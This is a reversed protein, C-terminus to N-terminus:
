NVSTFFWLIGEVAGNHNNKELFLAESLIKKAIKM